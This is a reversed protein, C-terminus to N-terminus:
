KTHQRLFEVTLPWAKESAKLNAGEAGGQQRLFGHGAGDFVHKTFKEKLGTEAREITANVRQDNQGYLGLVPAKVKEFGSEPSSGYYVVAASLEPQHVAYAFSRAGGWCYGITAFKGNSAEVKTKAYDKVADIIANSDAVSIAQIAGRVADGGAFAETGGGNPGTGSLFDPAIAIFGDAALQDAVGRVWDSLGFIEHIVIVVPAKEKKEPFVIYSRIPKEAGARPIPVFEGHRPSKELREKAGEAGAPISAKEAGLASSVLGLSLAVVLAVTRM